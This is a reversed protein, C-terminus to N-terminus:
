YEAPQQTNMFDWEQKEETPFISRVFFFQIGVILPITVALGILLLLTGLIVLGISLLIYLIIQGINNRGIKWSYGLAQGLPMDTFQALYPFAFFWAAFLAGLVL